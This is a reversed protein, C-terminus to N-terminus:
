DMDLKQMRYRLARLTLGLQRATATKNYRNAQLAKEIAAREVSELQGGLDDGAPASGRGDVQGDIRGDTRGAPPAAAAVVPAM